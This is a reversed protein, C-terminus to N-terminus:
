VLPLVNVTVREDLELVAVTPMPRDRRHRMVQLWCWEFWNSGGDLRRAAEAPTVHYTAGPNVLLAGDFEEVRAQHTHGYVIVDADPFQSRLWRALGLRPAGVVGLGVTMLFTLPEELLRSRNGHLMGIRRGAVQLARRRPLGTLASDHDGRVAKVPAIRGLTALTAEWGPGAVDGCHLILDVGRLRRELAPVPLAALFEPCHTDAIVGVRTRAEM